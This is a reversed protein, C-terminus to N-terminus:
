TLRLCKACTVENDDWTTVWGEFHKGEGMPACLTTGNYIARHIKRPSTKRTVAVTYGCALCNRYQIGPLGDSHPAPRELHTTCKPCRM